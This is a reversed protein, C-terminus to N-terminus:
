SFRESSGISLKICHVGVNKLCKVGVPEHVYPLKECKIIQIRGVTYM